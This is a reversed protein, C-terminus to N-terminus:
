SKSENNMDCTQSPQVTGYVLRCAGWVLYAQCDACTKEGLWAEGYGAESKTIRRDIKHPDEFRKLVSEGIALKKLNEM